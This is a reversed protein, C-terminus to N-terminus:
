NCAIASFSLLGLCLSKSIMIINEASPVAQLTVSWAMYPLAVFTYYVGPFWSATEKFNGHIFQKALILGLPTGSFAYGSLCSLV